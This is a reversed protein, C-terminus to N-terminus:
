DTPPEVPPTGGAGSPGAAPAPDDPSPPPEIGPERRPEPSGAAEDALGGIVPPAPPPGPDPDVEAAEPRADSAGPAPAEPAATEAAAAEPAEPPASEPAAAEPAATVPEERRAAEPAPAPADGGAPAPGEVPGSAVDAPEATPSAPAPAPAPGPPRPPPPISGPPRPPPPISGPPRPPPPISGPPRPPPPISGPPRPPPPVPAGPPVPGRSPGAPAAPRSGRPGGGGPGRGSSRGGRRRGAPAEPPTVGFLAAVTPVRGAHKRVVVLLAEDPEAPAGAPTVSRRIPSYAVADLVTGWRDPTVDAALAASAAEVLRATLEPPLASSPEPPRSSLRLARVVRGEDLSRTLDALWEAQDKEVRAELATRLRTALERTSEDRSVDGASVVVSRLDRLSIEDLIAVAADARDLWEAVRLRPLLEEAMNILSEAPLEPTGAERAAANQEEVAQRVAPIGGRVVQEAVAQQEAPLASLVAERHARGPRLKKPKPKPEPAPPRERRPRAAREDGGTRPPRPGRDARDARDPQQRGGERPRRDPRGRDGDRPRRERRGGREGRDSRDRGTLTSTVPQFERAPGIVELREPEKRAQKPPLVSLIEIGDITFDAEARVVDGVKAGPYLLGGDLVGKPERAGAARWTWSGDERSSTLEVEIRRSM